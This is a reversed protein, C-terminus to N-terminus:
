RIGEEAITEQAVKAIQRSEETLRTKKWGGHAFWCVSVIAVGVNAIPFSWWLGAAQVGQDISIQQARAKSSVVSLLMAVFATLICRRAGTM